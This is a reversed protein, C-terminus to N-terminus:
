LRTLDLPRPAWLPLLSEEGRCCRDALGDNGLTSAAALARGGSSTAIAKENELSPSGGTRGGAGAHALWGM